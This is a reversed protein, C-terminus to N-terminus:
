GQYEDYPSDKLYAGSGFDILKVQQTEIDILLNEDKIDRHIIDLDACQEVIRVVQKFFQRAQDERLYDKKNIYEFLDRVKNPREM